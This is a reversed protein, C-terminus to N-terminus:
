AAVVREIADLWEGVVRPWAYHAAVHRRGAEGLRAREEAPRQLARLLGRRLGAASRYSEGAGSAAVLDALPECRGNVLVPVGLAMAELTVASLSEYRSPMALAAAGAVVADREARAIFGLARVDADAPLAFQGKGVFVLAAGPVQARVATWAALLDACGKGKEIRGVYVVYQAPLAHRARLAAADPPLVADVGVGVLRGERADAGYLHRALRREAATNYLTEGAAAFVRRFWPLYMPKEDHLTPVLVSPANCAPLGEATPHYLATMFLVADHHQAAQRLHEVLDPCAPGQRRLFEHGDLRDDGTPRAVREIRLADLLAAAVLRLKHRLPVRARGGENRQGHAFRRVRVDGEQTEGPPFAMAWTTADAACSTLVTVAHAPQLATVITRAHQEAGGVLGPGWRQVVVAVRRRKRGEAAAAAAREVSELM